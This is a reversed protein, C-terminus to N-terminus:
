KCLWRKLKGVIAHVYDVIRWRGLLEVHVEKGLIFINNKDMINFMDLYTSVEKPTPYEKDIYFIIKQKDDKM